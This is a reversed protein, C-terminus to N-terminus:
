HGQEITECSGCDAGTDNKESLRNPDPDPDDLFRAASAHRDQAGSTAHRAARPAAPVVIIRSHTAVVLHCRSLIKTVVPSRMESSPTSTASTLPLDSKAFIPLSVPFQQGHALGDADRCGDIYADTSGVCVSQFRINIRRVFIWPRIEPEIRIWYEDVYM